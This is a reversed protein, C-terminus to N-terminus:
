PNTPSVVMGILCIFIYPILAWLRMEAEKVGNNRITLKMSVWDSMPGATALGFAGGVVFAFNIFGVNASSFNYPPAAFVQSQTLNLALLCNTTFGFAMAVWFTIPLFFIQIPALIDRFLLDRGEWHLTPILSFQVQSPRGSTIHSITPRQTENISVQEEETDIPSEGMEKNAKASTLDPERSLTNGTNRDTQWSRQDRIYRTEPFMFFMMILNLQLTLEFNESTIYFKLVYGKHLVVFGSFGGGHYILPLTELSSLVLIYGWFTLGALSTLWVWNERKVSICVFISGDM